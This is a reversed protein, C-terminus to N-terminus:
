LFRVGSCMSASQRPLLRAAVSAGSGTLALYYAFLADSKYPNSATFGGGEKQTFVASLFVLLCVTFTIAFTVFLGFLWGNGFHPAWDREDNDSLSRTSALRPM